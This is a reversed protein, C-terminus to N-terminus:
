LRAAATLAREFLTTRIDKANVWDRNDYTEGALTDGAYLMQGVRVGRYKAVAFFASAEMEVTICGEALRRDVRSRPERFIADTTWTMGSRYPVDVADLSAAIAANVTEDASVFRSPALYHYSTGEDRLAQDAIVVEGLKLEPILAGAGGVAVFDRCGMVIAEEMASCAAPAGVGPFFYAIQEGEWTTVYVPRRDQTGLRAHVSGGHKAVVEAFFCMVARRPAGNPTFHESPEIVGPETLDDELLPIM